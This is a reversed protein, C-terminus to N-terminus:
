GNQLRCPHTMTMILRRQKWSNYEELKRMIDNKKNMPFRVAVQEIFKRNRLTIVMQYILSGTEKHRFLSLSIDQYQFSETSGRHISTEVIEGPRLGWYSSVLIYFTLQIMIRPHTYTYEDCCWLFTINEESDVYLAM